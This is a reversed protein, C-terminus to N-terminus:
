LEKEKIKHGLAQALSSSSRNTRGSVQRREIGEVGPRFHLAHCIAVALADSEDLSKFGKIGLINGVVKQIGQKSSHGHGGATLKVLNPSYEFINEPARQAFAALMAGRAQALKILAVPSKVYILGELAVHDPGWSKILDEGYLYIKRLREPFNKIKSFDTAGSELCQISRGNVQIIAHGILRSGPDIGLIKMVGNFWKADPHKLSM